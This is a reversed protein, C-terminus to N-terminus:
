GVLDWSVLVQAEFTLEGAEIPVSSDAAAEMRMMAPAFPQPPRAYSEEIKVIPGLSTNAANALLQGKRLADQVAAVRARDELPGTDDVTFTPGSISNAGLGVVQDLV